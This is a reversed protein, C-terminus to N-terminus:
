DLKQNQEEEEDRSKASENVFDHPHAKQAEYQAIGDIRHRGDMVWKGSVKAARVKELGSETMQGDEILKRVRKRNSESWHSDAKRLTFKRVYTEDDIKKIISDIWGFCLAELLAEEYKLSPRDVGKRYFVLWVGDKVTNHSTALWNRWEVRTKVYLERM